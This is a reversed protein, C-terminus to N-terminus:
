PSLLFERFESISTFYAVCHTRMYEEIEPIRHAWGAGAAAIGARQAMVVGPKLDDLILAEEPKVDFQKLIEQVPYPNPKRKEEDYTWGFVAEPLIGLERGHTRYHRLIVDEESHSVVTIIGGAEKFEGLTELFGPFFEPVRSTTYDRWIDYERRLEEESFDLEEVLYHMIGPHFNKLFWGDLSIPETEPRLIKMIERHASYHIDATSRVATDDHDLILCRYRLKM